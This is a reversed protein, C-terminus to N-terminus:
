CLAEFPPIVKGIVEEGAVLLRCLRVRCRLIPLFATIGFPHIAAIAIPNSDISRTRRIGHKRVCKVGAGRWPVFARIAREVM